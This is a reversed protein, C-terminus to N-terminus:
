ESDWRMKEISDNYAKIQSNLSDIIDEKSKNENM